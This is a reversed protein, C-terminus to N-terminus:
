ARPTIRAARLYRGARREVRGRAMLRQLHKAMIAQEGFAYFAAPERPRGYVIWAEVIEKMTRPVELFEILRRERTRVVELYADWREGPEAEFVGQEHGALRVRAPVRRLRSVSEETLEVSADRDGYWPGFPTLDYDGLFLVAPERFLFSLHGPTHGPTHLVEITVPGRRLVEGGALFGSPTRPRFHFETQLLGRWHRRFDPREMGYGDLFAEVDALMPADQRGMFLPLDDFLDLHAIHDEHWHSLWVESVGDEARLRRLRERDSGPDILLGAGEVYVSHCHPYKGRNPGPLFRVPGFRREPM